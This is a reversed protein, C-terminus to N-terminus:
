SEEQPLTLLDGAVLRGLVFRGEPILLDGDLSAAVGSGHALGNICQESDFMWRRGMHELKCRPVAVVPRSFDMGGARWRQIQQTGDPERKIGWGHMKNDSFQGRYVTGDRWFFVGEGSRQDDSFTGVYRNGNPWLFVGQGTKKGSVFYGM